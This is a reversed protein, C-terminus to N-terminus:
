ATPGHVDRYIKEVEQVKQEVLEELKSMERRLDGVIRSVSEAAGRNDDVVSGINEIAATVGRNVGLQEKISASLQHILGAHAGLDRAMTNFIRGAERSSEGGTQIVTEIQKVWASVEGATRASKEALQRIEDAVVAFGSREDGSRSAEIAANLALLNTQDAIDNIRALATGMKDAVEQIGLIESIIEQMISNGSESFLATKGVSRASNDTAQSISEMAGQLGEAATTVKDLGAAQDHAGDSVVRSVDALKNVLQRLNFISAAVIELTMKLRRSARLLDEAVLNEQLATRSRHAMVGAFGAMLGNLVPVFFLARAASGPQLLLAGATVAAPALVATGGAWIVDRLSLRLASLLAVAACSVELVILMTLADLFPFSLIASIGNVAVACLDLALSPIFLRAPNGKQSLLVAAILSYIGLGFFVSAAAISPASKGHALCLALIVGSSGMRVGIGIRDALVVQARTIQTLNQVTRM